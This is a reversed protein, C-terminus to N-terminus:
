AAPSRKRLAILLILGIALALGVIEIALAADSGVPLRLLGFMNLGLLLFFLVAAGWAVTKAPRKRDLVVALVLALCTLLRPVVDETGPPLTEM